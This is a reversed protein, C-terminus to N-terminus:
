SKIVTISAKEKYGHERLYDIDASLTRRDCVIGFENKLRTCFTNTSLPAEESSDTRLIDLIRTLKLRQSYDKAM